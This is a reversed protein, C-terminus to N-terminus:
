WQIRQAGCVALRFIWWTGVRFLYICPKRSFLALKFHDIIFYVIRPVSIIRNSLIFIPKWSKFQIVFVCIYSVFESFLYELVGRMPVWKGWRDGPFEKINLCIVCVCEFYQWLIWHDCVNIKSKHIVFHSM